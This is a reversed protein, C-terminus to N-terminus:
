YGCCFHCKYPLKNISQNYNKFQQYKLPIGGRVLWAGGGAKWRRCKKKKVKVKLPSAISFAWGYCLDGAHESQCSHWLLLKALQWTTPTAMCLLSFSFFFPKWPLMPKTTKGNSAPMRWLCILTPSTMSRQRVAPQSHTPPPLCTLFRRSTLANKKKKTKARPSRQLRLLSRVRSCFVFRCELGVPFRRREEAADWVGWEQEM